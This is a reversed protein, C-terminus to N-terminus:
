CLSRGCLGQKLTSVVNDVKGGTSKRIQLVVNALSIPSFSLEQGAMNRGAIASRFINGAICIIRHMM